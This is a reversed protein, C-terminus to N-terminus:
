FQRKEMVEFIGWDLGKQSPTKSRLRLLALLEQKIKADGVGINNM